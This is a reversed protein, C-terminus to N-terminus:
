RKLITILLHELIMNQRIKTEKVYNKLWGFVYEIPNTEPNYPINYIVNIKQDGVKIFGQM